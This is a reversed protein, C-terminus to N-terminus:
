PAKKLADELTRKVEATDPLIKIAKQAYEVAEDYRRLKRCIISLNNLVAPENPRRKLCRKLYMEAEEFRKRSLASMGMGFNAEPDDEDNKLVAASFRRAETFDARRLALQLGERPTLQMFTRLRENEVIGLMRKLVSNAEDLLNATDDDQRIRAFRSLRWNVAFFADALEFSVGDKADASIALIRKSLEEAAKIGREVEDPEFGVQRAVMGSATPLPKNDRRWFEFGLQIAVNDMGNTKEGAWVRLLAPVGREATSYDESKPDFGRLRITKEWEDAGSMMNLVLLEGNHRRSELEIATDLHGDSFLWKAKGCERVIEKVADNVLNLMAIENARDTRAFELLLLLVALVPVVLKLAKGPRKAKASLYTRQCEFTFAAACIAFSLTSAMVFVILLFDSAVMSSDRVFTWFRAAPFAGLQLVAMTGVFFLVVGRNFLMPEEDHLVRTSVVLAVVLPLVCCGLGLSWGLITSADALVHWYGAVYRFYIDNMEWGNAEIGGLRVFESANAWVSLALAGLFIFFMRWKPLQMPRPLLEPEEFYGGLILGVVLRYCVMLIPPMIFALPTEAAMCGMLAMVTFLIPNGGRGSLWLLSGHVVILLMLMVLADPSFVRCIIWFTDGLCFALTSLAAFFPVIRYNWVPQPNENRILMELIMRINLYMLAASLAAVVAGIVKLAIVAGDMGFAAFMWSTLFRWFGPFVTHPPRVGTIAAVEQWMSPDVGNTNWVLMMVVGVVGVAIAILRNILTLKTDNDVIKRM